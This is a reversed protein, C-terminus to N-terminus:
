AAGGQKKMALFEDVFNLFKRIARVHDDNFDALYKKTWGEGPFERKVDRLWTAFEDYDAASRGDAELCAGFGLIYGSLSYVNPEGIYLFLRADREKSLVQLADLIKM